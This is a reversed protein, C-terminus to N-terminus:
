VILNLFHNMQCYPLLYITTTRGGELGYVFNTHSMGICNLTKSDCKNSSSDMCGVAQPESKPIFTNEPGYKDYVSASNPASLCEAFDQIAFHTYKKDKVVKACRFL